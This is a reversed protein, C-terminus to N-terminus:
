LIYTKNIFRNRYIFGIRMKSPTLYIEEFVFAPKLMTDYIKKQWDYEKFEDWETLIAIAIFKSM